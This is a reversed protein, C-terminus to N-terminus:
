KNVTIHKVGLLTGSLSIWQCHWHICNSGNEEDFPQILTGVLDILHPTCIIGCSYARYGMQTFPPVLNDCLARSIAIM